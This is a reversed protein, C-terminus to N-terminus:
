RVEILGVMGLTSHRPKGPGDRFQCILAYREGRVLNVLVEERATVGPFAILVSGSPDAASDPANGAALYARAANASVGPAFRFLQVEHTVKGRNVFRFATPGPPLTAPARFAYETAEITVHRLSPAGVQAAASGFFLTVLWQMPTSRLVGAILM